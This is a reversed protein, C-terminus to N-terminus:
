HNRLQIVETSDSNKALIFAQGGRVQLPSIHRVQGKIESGKLLQPEFKNKGKNVLLTGFDADYRGMEINNDYYNGALLIDPLGDKNIDLIAGDKLPSL